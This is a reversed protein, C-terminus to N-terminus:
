VGGPEGAVEDMAAQVVSLRDRRVNGLFKLTVHFNDPAVWKVNPALKKVREAAASIASRLEADLCVAVFTRIVKQDDM